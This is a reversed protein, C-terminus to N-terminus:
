SSLNKRFYVVREMESFGLRAHMGHSNTDDIWADSALESCGRGRTWDEVAKVLSRAVGQKRNAERVYIGELFGVPSTTCGNVYDHRLTAEAFGIARGQDDRALLAIADPNTLAAQTEARHEAEAWPWLAQRLELWDKLTAPTATEIRM